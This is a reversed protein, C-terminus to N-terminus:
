RANVHQTIQYIPTIISVAIFGVILGMLVMLVPEILVTLNKTQEDVEAEYTESMYMLTDGLNGTAEGVGIMQAVDVPWLRPSNALHDSLKEGKTLHNSLTAAQNRYVLNATAESTIKAADVIVVGCRLLVSMTRCFNAVQYYQSLKGVIPLTLIIRQVAFRIARSTKLVLWFIIVFIILSALIWGGYNVLSNSITVLLKTTWPLDFRLSSFIPMIKPFIYVMLVSTIGFTAIVIVIPYVLASVVKRKLMQKKKLAEALYNLNDSLTGSQEGIRVLNIALDGFARGFQKMSAGLFQGHSVDFKLIALIKKATRKKSQSELMNLADYLPIGAKLLIGLRKSFFIQESMSLRLWRKHGPNATKHAVGAAQNNKSDKKFLAM